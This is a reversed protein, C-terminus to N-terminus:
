PQSRPSTPSLSDIFEDGSDHVDEAQVAASSQEPGPVSEISSTSAGAQQAAQQAAVYAAHAATNAAPYHHAALAAEAQGVLRDARRLADYAKAPSEGDLAAEALRNAAEVEAAAQWRDMNDRDFQSFDWNLDIYSMMSNVEDGAWVFFYDGTPSLDVDGASDYGDHPHSLGLHHGVEHIITTSLGYGSAVIEPSVLNFVYSQTGTQYDDDATGLFPADLGKLSYNFIPLEYDVTGQDDQTRDLQFTNQLFLNAYSPYGLKPYCSTGDLFGLYCRRAAGTFPLDQSDYSLQKEPLLERLEDLVLPRTVLDRSANIDENGEYTNSDLNISEALEGDATPLDVPYIPSPTFLLDVAVFRVLKALDGTLASTPRYRGPGYEWVPPIRYDPEGDGDLDEDDVNWSGAWSEPGASADHFWVRKTSGLGTEEDDATTGGWAIVKRSERNAGFDFGTDPDPEGTKTYVHHEFDDRGEWDILYVTNESTDIGEPPNDALWKEVTPADILHNGRVDVSNAKQRNYLQQYATLPARTSLEKLEAFFRDEYSKGTSQVHYDYRYTIGVEERVGYWSRSRVIPESTAPLADRLAGADVQPAEYGLLVVNVPLKEELQPQGGPQLHQFQPEAGSAPATGAVLMGGLVATVAALTRVPRTRLSRSLM